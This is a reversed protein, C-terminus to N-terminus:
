RNFICCKHLNLLVELFCQKPRKTINQKPPKSNGLLLRLLFDNTQHADCCRLRCINVNLLFFLVIRNKHPEHSHLYVMSKITHFYIDCHQSCLDFTWEDRQAHLRDLALDWSNNM